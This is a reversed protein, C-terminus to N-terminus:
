ELAVELNNILATEKTNEKVLGTKDVNSLLVM